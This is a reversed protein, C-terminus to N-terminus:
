LVARARARRERDGLEGDVTDVAEAGANVTCVGPTSRGVGPISDSLV